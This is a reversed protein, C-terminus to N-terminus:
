LQQSLNEMLRLSSGPIRASCAAIWEVDKTESEADANESSAKEQTEDEEALSPGSSDKENEETSRPLGELIHPDLLSLRSTIPFAAPARPAM